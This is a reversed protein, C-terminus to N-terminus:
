VRGRTGRKKRENERRKAEIEDIRTQFLHLIELTVADLDIARIAVRLARCRVYNAYAAM